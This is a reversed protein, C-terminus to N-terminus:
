QIKAELADAAARLSAVWATMETRTARGRVLRLSMAGAVQAVTRAITPTDM